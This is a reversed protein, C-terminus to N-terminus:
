QAGSTQFTVVISTTTASTVKRGGYQAAFAPSAVTALAVAIILFAKM